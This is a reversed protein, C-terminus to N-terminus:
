RGRVNGWKMIHLRSSFKFDNEKTLSKILSEKSILKNKESAQPMLIVKTKDIQYKKIIEKIESVDSENEIVFKFFSNPQVNFFNYCDSIDRQELLNNSNSTKPSVNWQDVLSIIEKSPIITGNTEVEIFYRKPLSSLLIALEKQQIMPEGGTIVINKSTFNDIKQKIEENSMEHVEKNYDFNDWDWTYKTDCWSCKLNCLATRIFISEKGTNIGEGQISQFIENIKM